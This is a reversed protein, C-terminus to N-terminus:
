QKIVRQTHQTRAGTVQIFYVGSALDNLDLKTTSGAEAEQSSLVEGQLSILEITLQKEENSAINVYVENRFPNPYVNVVDLDLGLSFDVARVESYESAGDYDFQHLRYYVTHQSRAITGDLYEYTMVENTTGNGEVRGIPEFAKGDYSREIIFHSNNIETATAWDLVATHNDAPNATFEILEVPLPTVGMGGAGGGSFSSVQYTASHFDYYAEYVWKTTSPTKGHTLIVGKSSSAHPSLFRGKTTIKYMNMDEPKDLNIPYGSAGGNHNALTDVLAKYEEDTFFYQVTLDSTPQTTPSVHWRRDIMAGGKTNTILGGDTTWSVTKNQGIFLSVGTDPVVAGTQDLDLAMILHGDACNIFYTYDGQTYAKDSTYTGPQTPLTIGSSFIAEYAGIDVQSGQVRDQNTIDGETGSPVSSTNGADVLPSCIVSRFGDDETRWENDPGDLDNIDAILDSANMNALNVFGSGVNAPSSTGEDSANNTGMLLGGSRVVDNNTNGMFWSNNITTFSGYAYIGGGSVSASNNLVSTNNIIANSQFYNYVGGGTQATNNAIAVNTFTPVSYDYNYVGGGYWGAKNNDVAGNIMTMDSSSANYIGGGRFGAENRKITVDVLHPEASSINAMGGGNLAAYNSDITVNTLMPSAGAINYMGGGNRSATNNRITVNNLIPHSQNNYIGGGNIATNNEFIVNEIKPSSQINYMGGGFYGYFPLQGCNVTDTTTAAGDTIILNQFSSNSDLGATIFVHKATDTGMAGSLTSYGEVNGTAPNYGGLVVLTSDIIHFAADKPDSGGCPADTPTYTGMSVYVTDVENDMAYDFAEQLTKFATGWTGGSGSSSSSSDVFLTTYTIELDITLISDCGATNPITDLYVDSEIFLKGSPSIYANNASVRISDYTAPLVQLNITIISDCGLTNQITDKYIGTQEYIKGSPSVYTSCTTEIISDKTDEAITLYITLLSDCNATNLITDIYTGSSDWIKGSPSTYTYCTTISFTSDTPSGTCIIPKYKWLEEGHIGDNASFYLADNFLLFNRPNSGYFPQPNIDKIMITGDTTGDTEWLESGSNNQATFYLRDKLVYGTSRISPQRSNQSIDKLKVFEEKVPDYKNLEGGVNAYFTDNLVGMGQFSGGSVSKITTGDYKVPSPYNSYNRGEFFLEKGFSYLGSVSRYTTSTGITNISNAASDIYFLQGTNNLRASFYLRGQHVLFNGPYSGTRFGGNLDQVMKTGNSTGDTEWLEFNYNSGWNNASFYVKNNFVTLDGSTVGDGRGPNIDKLLKTGSATGDSIYLERGTTYRADATFYLKNNHALFHLPTSGESAPLNPTLDVVMKTGTDTGNSRWLELGSTADFATFFLYDKTAAITYQNGYNVQKIFKTGRTTGDSEWLGNGNDSEALFYFLNNYEVMQGLFSSRTTTDIDKLLKTGIGTGDSIFLERGTKATAASFILKNGLSIFGSPQSSWTSDINALQKTGSATGDSVWLENDGNTSNKFYLKNNHEHIEYTSPTIGVVTKLNYTGDTEWLGYGDILVFMKNNFEFFNGSYNTTLNSRYISTGNTTGDTKVLQLGGSNRAAFFVTSGLAAFNNIRSDDSGTSVDKLLKTGNTTGDSIYPESGLTPTYATFYLTNGVATFTSPYSGQSGTNIDKLLKTGTATGDTIWIEADDSGTTARFVVSNGFRTLGTAYTPSNQNIKKLM